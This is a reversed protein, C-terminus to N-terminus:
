KVAQWPHQLILFQSFSMRQSGSLMNICCQLTARMNYGLARQIRGMFHSGVEASSILILRVSPRM